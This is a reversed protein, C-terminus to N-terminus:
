PKPCAKSGSYVSYVAGYSCLYSIYEGIIPVEQRIYLRNELLYQVYDLSTHGQTNKANLMRTFLGDYRKEKFYKRIM